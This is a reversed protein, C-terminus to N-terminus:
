RAAAFILTLNRCSDALLLGCPFGPLAVDSVFIAIWQGTDGEFHIM